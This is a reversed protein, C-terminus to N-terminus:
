SVPLRPLAPAYCSCGPLQPLYELALLVCGGQLEPRGAAGGVQGISLPGSARDEYGKYPHMISTLIYDFGNYNQAMSVAGVGGGYPTSLVRTLSGSGIDYAWLYNTDHWKTDESILLIDNDPMKYVSTPNAFTDNSCALFSGDGSLVQGGCIIANMATISYAKNM